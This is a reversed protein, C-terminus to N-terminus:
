PQNPDTLLICTNQPFDFILRSFLCFFMCDNVKACTKFRNADTHGLNPDTIEFSSVNRPKCFRVHPKSQDGYDIPLRSRLANPDYPCMEKNSLPSAKAPSSAMPSGKYADKYSTGKPFAPSHGYANPAKYGQIQFRLQIAPM